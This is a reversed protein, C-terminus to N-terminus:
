DNISLTYRKHHGPLAEEAYEVCNRPAFGKLEERENKDILKIVAANNLQPLIKLLFPRELKGQDVQKRLAGRTDNGGRCDSYRAQVNSNIAAKRDVNQVKISVVSTITIILLWLDRYWNDRLHLKRDYRRDSEREQITRARDIM